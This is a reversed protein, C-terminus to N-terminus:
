VTPLLKVTAVPCGPAPVPVAYKRKTYIAGYDKVIIGCFVM